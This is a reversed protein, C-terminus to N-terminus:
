KEKLIEYLAQRAENGGINGLYYIADSRLTYDKHTKAVKGLFEVAQRNGIEGISWLISRQKEVRYNPITSFLDSLAAVSKDKSSSYQGIYDIALNQIDESTDRKAVELYVSLVDFKKYNVYNVLADMATKRLAPSQKPDVAVDRLATFSLSDVKSNGLAYLADMKLRTEPDLKEEPDFLGPALAPFPTANPVPVPTGITHPHMRLQRELKALARVNQTLPEAMEYRYRFGGKGDSEKFVAGNKDVNIGTAGERVYVTSGSKGVAVSGGALKFMEAVADDYYNSNPYNLIFGKFAKYAKNKDKELHELAYASWYEADDVYESKPFEKVMEGLKKRAEEWQEDLILNYGEKYKKYGPDDKKDSSGLLEMDASINLDVPTGPVELAYVQPALTMTSAKPKPSELQASAHTCILFVACLVVSFTKIMMM